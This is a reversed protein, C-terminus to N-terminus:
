FIFIYKNGDIEWGWIGQSRNLVVDLPKYNKGGFKDETSNYNEPMM